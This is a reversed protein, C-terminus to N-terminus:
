LGDSLTALRHKDEAPTGGHIDFCAFVANTGGHFIDIVSQKLHWGLLKFPFIKADAESGWEPLVIEDVAIFAYTSFRREQTDVDRTTALM